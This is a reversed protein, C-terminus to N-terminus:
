NNNIRRNTICDYLECEEAFSANRHLLKKDAASLFHKYHRNIWDDSLLEKTVNKPPQWNISHGLIGDITTHLHAIYDISVIYDFEDIIKQNTFVTEHDHMDSLTRATSCYVIGNDDFADVNQRNGHADGHLCFEEFAPPASEPTSTESYSWVYYNYFSLFRDFPDRIPLVNISNEHIRNNLFGMYLTLDNGTSILEGDDYISIHSQLQEDAKICERLWIGGTKAIHPIYVTPQNNM